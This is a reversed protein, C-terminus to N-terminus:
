LEYIALKLYDKSYVTSASYKLKCSYLVVLCFPFALKTLIRNVFTHMFKCIIVIKVFSDLCKWFYTTPGESPGLLLVTNVKKYRKIKDTM